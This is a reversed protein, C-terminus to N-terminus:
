RLTSDQGARKPQGGARAVPAIARAWKRQVASKKTMTLPRPPPPAIVGGGVTPWAASSPAGNRRSPPPAEGKADAARSSTMPVPAVGRMKAARVQAWTCPARSPGLAAVSSPEERAKAETSM